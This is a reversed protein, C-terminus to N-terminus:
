IAKIIFWIIIIGDWRLMKLSILVLYSGIHIKKLYKSVSFYFFFVM